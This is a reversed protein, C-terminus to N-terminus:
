YALFCQNSFAFLSRRVCFFALVLRNSEARDVLEPFALHKEWNPLSM